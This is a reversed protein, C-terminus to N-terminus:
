LREEDTLEAYRQMFRQYAEQPHWPHFQPDLTFLSMDPHGVWRFILEPSHCITAAEIAMMKDDIAKVEPDYFADIPLHFAAALKQGLADEITIYQPCLLKIPRRLDDMYAETGDHLLFAKRKQAQLLYSGYVSHQAVSYRIFDKTAGGFRCIMSLGYAIDHIRFDDPAPDLVDFLNGSATLVRGERREQSM